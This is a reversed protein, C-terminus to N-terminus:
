FINKPYIQFGHPVHRKGFKIHSCCIILGQPQNPFEGRLIVINSEHVKFKDLNVFSNSWSVILRLILDRWNVFLKFKVSYFCFWSNYDLILSSHWM